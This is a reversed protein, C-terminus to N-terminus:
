SKCTEKVINVSLIEIGPERHCYIFKLNFIHRRSSSNSTPVPFHDPLSFESKDEKMKGQFQAM